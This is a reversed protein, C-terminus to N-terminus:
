HLRGSVGGSLINYIGTGTTLGPDLSLDVMKTNLREYTSIIRNAEADMQGTWQRQYPIFLRRALEATLASSAGPPL